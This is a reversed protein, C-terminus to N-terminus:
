LSPKRGYLTNSMLKTYARIYEQHAKAYEYEFKLEVLKEINAEEYKVVTMRKIEGSINGYMVEFDSLSMNEHCEVWEEQDSSVQVQIMYSDEFGLQNMQVRLINKLREKFEIKKGTVTRLDAKVEDFNKNM